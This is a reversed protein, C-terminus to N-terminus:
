HESLKSDLSLFDGKHFWIQVAMVLMLGQVVLHSAGLPWNVGVLCGCDVVGSGLWYLNAITAAMFSVAILMAVLAVIRQMLGLILCIGVTVEAWPLFWGYAEALPQPLVRYSVVTTAFGALQTVKSLGFVLLTTGLLSRFAFALKDNGLFGMRLYPKGM